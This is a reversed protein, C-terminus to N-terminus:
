PMLKMATDFLPGVAGIFGHFLDRAIAPAFVASLAATTLTGIAWVFWDKKGFRDMGKIIENFGKEM